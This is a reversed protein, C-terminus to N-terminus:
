MESIQCTDERRVLCCIVNTKVHRVLICCLYINVLVEKISILGPVRTAYM